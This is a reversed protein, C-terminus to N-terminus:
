FLTSILSDDLSELLSLLSICFKSFDKKRCQAKFCLIFCEASSSRSSPNVSNGTVAVVSRGVGLSMLDVM